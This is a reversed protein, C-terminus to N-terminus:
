ESIYLRSIDQVYLPYFEYGAYKKNLAVFEPLDQIYVNAAEASLIRQCEKYYGTKQADDTSAIAARVAADYEKNNFNIFNGPHGSEFRELLARATLSSADVGVVTAQYNRGAYVDSLWSEWEVLQIRAEAGVAKFQEALVQATDIHQQYNSPVTITFSLGEGYGAEALLSKAKELDQQYTDKLEEMYYKGFAPFMSSGIETGKGGSVFDMIEQSSAAYCLAQRVRIDDFPEAENNLYLAQVLNMTGELVEFKDSLEAAQAATVRAFMDISGGELDMVISDANACVKFTVNEIHAGEGWYEDFREVVFSEQPSRSVFKYPGTGIPNTDPESNSAPIIAAAVNALEAAFETDPEKLFIEITKDDPTNVSELNSFAAILPEGRGADACKEMSYKVDEVTVPSGDHFKIGDRLTFTYVRGDESPHYESAVAPILNGESDPKVLGEFINFYVEKTGAAVAKHPDLSDEVDQPIGITIRSSNGDAKDGSCAGLAITLATLVFVSLLKKLGKSKM